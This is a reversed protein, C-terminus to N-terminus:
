SQHGPRKRVLLGNVLMQRRMCIPMIHCLVCCWLAATLSLTAVSACLCGRRPAARAHRTSRTHWCVGPCCKQQMAAHDKIHCTAVYMATIPAVAGAQVGVGRFRCLNSCKASEARLVKPMPAHRVRACGLVDKRGRPCRTRACVGRRHSPSVHHRLGVPMRVLWRRQPTAAPQETGLVEVDPSM